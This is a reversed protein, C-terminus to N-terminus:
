KANTTEVTPPVYDDIGEYIDDDSDDVPQSKTHNNEVDKMKSSMTTQNTAKVLVSHKEKKLKIRDFVSAIKQILTRDVPTCSSAVSNTGNEKSNLSRGVISAFPIEWGHELLNHRCANLSFNFTSRHVTQGAVSLQPQNLTPPAVSTSQNENAAMKQLYSSMNKALSSTPISDSKKADLSHSEREKYAKKAKFAKQADEMVKDLDIDNNSNELSTRTNNILSDDGRTIMVSGGAKQDQTSMEERRVKDALTRDLGKVLHTFQEDGGLFKTMDDRRSRDGDDLAHHSDLPLFLNDAEQYDLNKGERREKARDRYKSGDDNGINKKKKRIQWAHKQNQEEKLKNDDVSDNNGRKDEYDSEDDDSMDFDGDFDGKNFKRKKKIENFEQQVADRAIEKNSKSSPNHSSTTSNKTNNKNSHQYQYVLKRFAQNNM